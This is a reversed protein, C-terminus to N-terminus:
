RQKPKTLEFLAEFSGGADQGFDIQLDPAFVHDVHCSRTPSISAAACERGILEEVGAPEITALNIGIRTILLRRAEADSLVDLKLHDAGNRTILGTLQRRSTVIVHLHAAPRRRRVKTPTALM